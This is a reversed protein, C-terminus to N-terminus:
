RDGAQSYGGDARLQDLTIVREDQYAERLEKATAYKESYEPTTAGWATSEDIVCVFERCWTCFTLWKTGKEFMRDINPVFDNETMAIMKNQSTKYCTKFRNANAQNFRYLIRSSNTYYPDDGIIDCKDDGVYWRPNQGNYVWILNNLGNVNTMRDYMLNWLEKYAEAGSAGWWFWGGSAEHLPRWLVPVGADQLKKMEKSIIDIDRLLGQYEPSNPNDLAQKLNFDTQETYFHRKEETQSPAMWHWCFTVIGGAQHWEIAQQVSYCKRGTETESLDLGIMAPYANTVSHVAQLENAKFVTMPSNPDNEDVRFQPASFYEYENIYQGSIVRKGYCDLLFRYLAKASEDANPNILAQDVMEYHADEVQIMGNWGVLSLICSIVAMLMSFIRRLM